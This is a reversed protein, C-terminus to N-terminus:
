EKIQNNVVDAKKWHIAEGYKNVIRKRNLYFSFANNGKLM